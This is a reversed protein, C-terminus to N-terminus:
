AGVNGNTISDVDIEGNEIASNITNVTAEGLSAQLEQVGMNGVLVTDGSITVSPAITINLEQASVTGGVNSGSGPDSTQSGRGFGRFRDIKAQEVTKFRELSASDQAAQKGLSIAHGGATAAAAAYLAAGAFNKEALAALARVGWELALTKLRESMAEKEAIGRERLAVKEGLATNRRLRESETEFKRRSITRSRYDMKLIEQQAQAQAKAVKQEKGYNFLTDSLLGAALNGIQEAFQKYNELRQDLAIKQQDTKLQEVLKTKDADNLEAEKDIIKQVSNLIGSPDTKTAFANSIKKRFSDSLGEIKLFASKMKNFADTNGSAGVISDKLSDLVGQNRSNDAQSAASLKQKLDQMDAVMDRKLQEMRANAKEPNFGLLDTLIGDSSGLIAANHTDKVQTIASVKLKSIILGRQAETLREVGAIETNLNDIAVTSQAVEVNRANTMEKILKDQNDLQQKTMKIGNISDRERLAQIAAESKANVRNIDSIKEKLAFVKNSSEGEIRAIEIAKEGVEKYYNVSEGKLDTYASEVLQISAVQLALTKSNQTTSKNIKDIAKGFELKRIDKFNELVEKVKMEYPTLTATAKGSANAINLLYKDLDGKTDDKVIQKLKVDLVDL